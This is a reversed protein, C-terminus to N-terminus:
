PSNCGSNNVAFQAPMLTTGLRWLACTSLPLGIPGNTSPAGKGNIAEDGDGGPLELVLWGAQAGRTGFSWRAARLDSEANLRAYSPVVAIPAVVRQRMDPTPEPYLAVSVEIQEPGSGQEAPGSEVVICRENAAFAQAQWGPRLAQGALLQDCPADPAAPVLTQLATRDIPGLLRSARAAVVRWDSGGIAMGRGGVEQWTTAIALRGSGTQSRLRAAAAAETLTAIANRRLNLVRGSPDAQWDVQQVVVTPEGAGDGLSYAVHNLTADFVVRADLAAPMFAVAGGSLCRASSPQFTASLLELSRDSAAREAVFLARRWASPPAGAHAAVFLVGPTSEAQANTCHTTLRQPPELLMRDGRLAARWVATGMLSRLQANVPVESQAGVARLLDAQRQVPPLWSLKDILWQSNGMTGAGVGTRASDLNAAARLLIQLRTDDFAGLTDPKPGATNALNAADFFLELRRLSPGQVFTAFLGTPVFGFFLAALVVFQAVRRRRQGQRQRQLSREVFDGLQPVHAALAGGGRQLQLLRAAHQQSAANALRARQWETALRRLENPELLLDDSKGAEAWDAGRRLLELSDESRRAEDDVLARFRTWGRIFSEHSVKVTTRLPDEDNWFLYDVGGLFGEALLRRVDLSTKGPGLLRAADDVDLRQQSYQGTNPDRLALQRLLAELAARNPADLWQYVREPWHEVCARLTNVSPDLPQPDGDSANVARALDSDTVRSPVLAGIDERELAAQWLRALLHQLLPLHDPDGAIASADHLVRQVVSAEFQVQHPLTRDPNSRAALRLFRQAPGTIVDHLESDDLRRVLYSSKNIADPLELFAACENLFESRMTVVVYCRPHPNYFHDLVREVLLRADDVDRNTPHFIEEFQDLVILLRADDAELGPPVDLEHRYTDVLRAFGAEQRFVDAIETLRQADAQESGRSQLLAAFRRALATVPSNSRQAVETGSANTGPTFSMALWLDGAGPIGYSRLRPILGATVLSSKGSGSGGLVAVFQTAALRDVIEGVQRDRGFLLAAEFDLYPRLGPYPERPLRLRADPTM